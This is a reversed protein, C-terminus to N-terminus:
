GARPLTILLKHFSIQRLAHKEIPHFDGPAGLGPASEDSMVAIGGVFLTTKAPQAGPTAGAASRGTRKV